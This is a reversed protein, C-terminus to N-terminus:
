FLDYTLEITKTITKTITGDPETITEIQSGDTDIVKETTTEKQGKTATNQTTRLPKTPLTLQVPKSEQNSVADPLVKTSADAFLDITQAASNSRTVQPRTPNIPKQSPVEPTDDSIQLGGDQDAQKASTTSNTRPPKPPPSLKKQPNQIPTNDLSTLDLGGGSFTTPTGPKKSPTFTNKVMDKGATYAKGLQTKTSNVATKAANYVSSAANSSRQSM